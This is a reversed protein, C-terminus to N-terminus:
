LRGMVCAAGDSHVCVGHLLYCLIPYSLIPYSLIPYSLIPYSLIPYSLIPYSLIPYSLIPYTHTRSVWGRAEMEEYCPMENARPARPPLRATDKMIELM